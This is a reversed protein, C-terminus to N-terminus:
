VPYHPERAACVTCGVLLPWAWWLLPVGDRNRDKIVILTHTHRGTEETAVHIFFLM